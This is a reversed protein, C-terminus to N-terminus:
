SHGGIPGIDDSVVVQAIAADALSDFYKESVSFGRWYQVEACGCITHDRSRRCLGNVQLAIRTMRTAFM